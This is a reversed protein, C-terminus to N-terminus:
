AHGALREAGDRHGGALREGAMDYVKLVAQAAADWGLRRAHRHAGIGLLARRDPDALLDALASAWAGAAHGRVLVGSVGDVVVTRLGGVRAAVVPTGCAQAEAAVLGFSETRSPVAVVDAARYWDALVHRAVPPRVVLRDQVGLSAALAHLEAVARPSGSPGGLVVLLPVAGGRRRVEALARVLVDPAKLPQVRGAFLVVQEHAPLGVAARAALQAAALDPVSLSRAAPHFLDLDVGPAVVHVSGPDADYLEMLDSAEEATSATLAHAAAVVQEEGIIRGAPEPVDGPALAANKVKALTHM